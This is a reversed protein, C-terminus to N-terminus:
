CIFSHDTNNISITLFICIFIGIGIILFMKDWALITQNKTLSLANYLKYNNESLSQARSREACWGYFKKLSEYLGVLGMNQFKQANVYVYHDLMECFLYLLVLQLSIEVKLAFLYEWDPSNLLQTLVDLALGFVKQKGFQSISLKRILIWVFISLPNCGLSLLDELLALLKVVLFLVYIADFVGILICSSLLLDVSWGLLIWLGLLLVVALPLSSPSLM